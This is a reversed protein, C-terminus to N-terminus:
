HARPPEKRQPLINQKNILFNSPATKSISQHTKTPEISLSPHGAEGVLVASDSIDSTILGRLDLYFGFETMHSM